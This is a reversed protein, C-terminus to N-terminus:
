VWLSRPAGPSVPAAWTACLVLATVAVALTAIGGVDIRVPASRAPPTAAPRRRDAIAALGLPVNMWLAWRWGVGETFWGGLVPGVVAALAFVAGIAALYPARERAPVM